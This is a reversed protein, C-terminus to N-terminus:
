RRLAPLDIMRGTLSALAGSVGGRSGTLSFFLDGNEPAVTTL